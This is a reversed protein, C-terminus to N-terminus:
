NKKVMEPHRTAIDICLEDILEQKIVEDVDTNEVDVCEKCREYECDRGWIEMLNCIICGM